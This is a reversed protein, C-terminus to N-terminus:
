NEIVEVEFILLQQPKQGEFKGYALAPHVYIKRKEGVRMGLVGKSFGLITESLTLRIPSGEFTDRIVNGSLDSEKFHLLPTSTALIVNGTGAQILEYYLKGKQLEVINPQRMLTNLFREASALNKMAEEELMKEWAGEMIRTCDDMDMPVREKVALEKMTQLVLNIDYYQCSDNLNQWLLNGMCISLDNIEKKTFPIKSDEMGPDAICSEYSFICVSLLRFFKHIM